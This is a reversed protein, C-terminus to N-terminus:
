AVQTELVAPASAQYREGNRLTRGAAMAVGGELSKAIMQARDMFHRAARPPCLDDVTEGFLQLWRDFHKADVPLVAHKPMPRGSYIGTQLTVSSWFACMQDYHAEWDHIRAEFVPGIFPDQRVRAYFEHVVCEIMAENIGTTERLGATIAARHAAHEAADM